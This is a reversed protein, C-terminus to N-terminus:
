LMHKNYENKIYVTLLALQLRKLDSIPCDKLM